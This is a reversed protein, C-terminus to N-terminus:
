LWTLLMYGDILINGAGIIILALRKWQALKENRGLWILFVGVPLALAETIIHFTRQEVAM